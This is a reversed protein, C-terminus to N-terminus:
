SVFYGNWQSEHLSSGRMGHCYKLEARLRAFAGLLPNEPGPVTNGRRGKLLRSAIGSEESQRGNRVTDQSTRMRTLTGPRGGAEGGATTPRSPVELLRSSSPTVSSAPGGLIASISSQAWRPHKRMASTVTVCETVVLAVPDIAVTIPTSAHQDTTPPYATGQSQQAAM